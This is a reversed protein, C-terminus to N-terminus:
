RALAALVEERVPAACRVVTYLGRFQNRWHLDQGYFALLGPAQQQLRRLLAFTRPRPAYRGDYKTNWAEIGAPLVSRGEIWPFPSDTPHAIVSVGGRRAIEGIVEEPEITALLDTVGYGLVHMRDRCGYELGAIFRFREDSLRACEAVYEDRKAQDFAEAHDTV